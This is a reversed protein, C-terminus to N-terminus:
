EFDDDGRGFMLNLQHMDVLIERGKNSTNGPRKESVIGKQELIAVIRQARNFGFNFQQQIGNISCSKSNVCFSAVDYLLENSEGAEAQENKIQTNEMSKKLQDHTFVYDPAAEGCIYDCVATIEDDSVFAGQVRQPADIDKILMDGKGLLNEAGGEDLITNSDVFAAVRFAIRTPINGKINGSVVQVTPRQTAVVMHIGAARAKATIRKINDEIEAGGGTMLDALEDIVIIIYPLKELALEPHAKAKKNYDGINRVRNANLVQYRREMEDVAWKLAGPVLSADTIIPTILHPLGTYFSFEVQKPDVLILKLEDPKNKLLLSILITSMCVSKGSKTAGAVLCHPMDDICRSIPNGDIDKGLMVMTKNESNIFEDTIIDGFCVMETKDNPVEIGVTKKGPIPALIRISKVGLNMQFNEHLSKVRAVKQGAALMIEYRTFAPGKTYNVVEGEVDFSKLTDNIIDKKEELWAPVEDSSASSKKFIDLPPLKYDDYKSSVVKPTTAINEEVNPKNDDYIIEEEKKELDLPKEEAINKEVVPEEKKTDDASSKFLFSPISSAKPEELKPDFSNYEYEDDFNIDLNITKQETPLDDVPKPEEVIQTKENIDEVFSFGLKKKKPEVSKIKDEVPPEYKVGFLKEREKNSIKSFEPYKSGYKRLLEEEKIHKDEESRFADYASDVNVSGQNDSYVVKDKIQSGFFVSGIEGMSFKPKSTLLGEDSETVQPIKFPEEHEITKPQKKKFLGM